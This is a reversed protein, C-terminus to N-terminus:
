TAAMVDDRTVNPGVLDRDFQFCIEPEIRAQIFAGQAVDHGAGIQMDDLLFGFDPENVGLQEQMRKNTLGVKHGIRVAGAELRRSLNLRQVHYATEVDFDPYRESIPPIPVRRREAEALEDAVESPADVVPAVPDSTPEIPV